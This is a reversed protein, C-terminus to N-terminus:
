IGPTTYGELPFKSFSEPEFTVAWSPLHQILHLGSGLFEIRVPSESLIMDNVLQMLKRSRSFPCAYMWYTSRSGAPAHNLDQM